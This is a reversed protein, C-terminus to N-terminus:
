KLILKFGTDNYTNDSKELVIDFWQNVFVVESCYPIGFTGIRM